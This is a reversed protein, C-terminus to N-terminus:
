KVYKKLSPVVQAAAELFLKSMKRAGTHNLHTDDQKKPPFWMFLSKSDEPGLSEVLKRSLEEADVYPTGMEEAVEFPAKIYEGHTNTLKGNEDFKRRVMSNFLVPQAGKDEAETIFRRLNDKFTTNADTHRTTDAKEDNHGFQIFVYDGKQLLDVVRKWRGETIFSKSSRGNQAHNDVIIADTLHENLLQCWGAEETGEGKNAMTSDGISFITPKHKRNIKMEFPFAYFGLSNKITPVASENNLYRVYIPHQVDKCWLKVSEKNNYVAVASHWIGDSGAVEFWEFAPGYKYSKVSSPNVIGDAIHSYHVLITDIKEGVVVSTSDARPGSWETQKHGYTKNLALLALRRGVEWKYSPHIDYQDDVLEPTFIIETNEVVDLCQMQQLRFKPLEDADLYGARHRQSSYRFPALMVTLFPQSSATNKKGNFVNKWENTLRVFKKAYERDSATCNQEGQYWLFGKVAYPVYERVTRNYCDGDIFWQEILTGNIANSIIGVPVNLSDQLNKVCFYGPASTAALSEGNAVDWHAKKSDRQCNFVRIKSNAPKQLEVACLDEGNMPPKLASSLKMTYAMNSQGGAVWVEGVVVDNFTVKENGSSVTLIKGEYTAKQKPLMAIWNGEADAIAKVTKKNFTVSVKSGAKAKGYVPVEVGQQLVMHDSFMPAPIISQAKAVIPLLALLLLSLINKKM